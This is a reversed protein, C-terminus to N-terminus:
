IWRDLPPQMALRTAIPLWRLQTTDIRVVWRGIGIFLANAKGAAFATVHMKAIFQDGLGGGALDTWMTPSNNRLRYLARGNASLVYIRQDSDMALATPRWLQSEMRKARSRPSSQWLGSPTTFFLVSASPEVLNLVEEEPAAYETAQWRGQYYRLFISQTPRGVLFGYAVPDGTYSEGVVRTMSENGLPVANDGILRFYRREDPSYGILHGEKPLAIAPLWGAGEQSDVRRARGGSQPCRYVRWAEDALYIDDRRHDVVLETIDADDLECVQSVSVPAPSSEWVPESGAISEVEQYPSAWKVIRKEIQRPKPDLFVVDDLSKRNEETLGTFGGFTREEKDGARTDGTMATVFGALTMARGSATLKAFIDDLSAALPGVQAGSTEPWEVVSASTGDKAGFIVPQPGLMGTGLQIADIIDRLNQKQAVSGPFVQVLQQDESAHQRCADVLVLVRDSVQKLQRLVWEVPILQDTMEDVRRSPDDIFGEPVLFVSRSMGDALGHGFFYFVVLSKRTPDENTKTTRVWNAIADTLVSKRRRDTPDFGGSNGPQSTLVTVQAQRTSPLLRRLDKAVLEAASVAGPLAGGIRPSAVPYNGLGIVLAHVDYGSWLAALQPALINRFKSTEELNYPRADVTSNGGGLTSSAFLLRALRVGIVVPGDATIRGDASYGLSMGLKTQWNAMRTKLSSASQLKEAFTLELHNAVLADTVVFLADPSRQLAEQVRQQDKTLDRIHGLSLTVVRVGDLVVTADSEGKTESGVSLPQPNNANLDSRTTASRGLKLTISRERSHTLWDQHGGLFDHADLAIYDAKGQIYLLTGTNADAGSMLRPEFGQTRVWDDITLGRNQYNFAAVFLGGVIAVAIFIWLIRIRPFRPSKVISNINVRKATLEKSRTM